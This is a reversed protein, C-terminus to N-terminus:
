HTIFCGTLEFFGTYIRDMNVDCLRYSFYSTPLDFLMCSYIEFGEKEIEFNIPLNKNEIPTIIFLYDFYKTFVNEKDISFTFEVNNENDKCIVDILTNKMNKEIFNLLESNKSDVVKFIKMDSTSIYPYSKCLIDNYDPYPVISIKGRRNGLDIM